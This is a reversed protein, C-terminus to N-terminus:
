YTSYLWSNQICTLSSLLECLCDVTTAPIKFYYSTTTGCGGIVCEVTPDNSYSIEPINISATNDDYLGYQGITKFVM